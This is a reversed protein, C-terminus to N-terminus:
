SAGHQHYQWTALITAQSKCATGLQREPGACHAPAAAVFQEFLTDVAEPAAEPATITLRIETAEEYLDFTLFPLFAQENHVMESVREKPRGLIAPCRGKTNLARMM